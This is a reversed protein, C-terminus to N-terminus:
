FGDVLGSISMGKYIKDDTHRVESQELSLQRRLDRLEELTLTNPPTNSGAYQSWDRSLWARIPGTYKDKLEDSGGDPGRLATLIYWLDKSIEVPFENIYQPNRYTMVRDILTELADAGNSKM